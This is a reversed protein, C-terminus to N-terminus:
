VLFKNVEIIIRDKTIGIGTPAVRFISKLRENTVRYASKLQM